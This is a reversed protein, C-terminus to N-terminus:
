FLKELFGRPKREKFNEGCVCFHGNEEEQIVNNPAKLLICILSAFTLPGSTYKDIKNELVSILRNHLGIEQM